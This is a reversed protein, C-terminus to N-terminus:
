VKPRSEFAMRQSFSMNSHDLNHVNNSEDPTGVKPSSTSKKINTGIDIKIPASGVFGEKHEPSRSPLLPEPSEKEEESRQISPRREPTGPDLVDDFSFSPEEEHVTEPEQPSVQHFYQKWSDPDPEIGTVKKPSTRPSERQSRPSTPASGVGNYGSSGVEQSAQASQGGSVDEEQEVSPAEDEYVPFEHMQLKFDRGAKLEPQNARKHFLVVAEPNPDQVEAEPEMDTDESESDESGQTEDSDESCFEEVEPPLRSFSVHKEVLSPRRKVASKLAPRDPTANHDPAKRNKLADEFSRQQLLNHAYSALEEVRSSTFHKIQEILLLERQHIKEYIDGPGNECKEQLDKPLRDLLTEQITSDAM